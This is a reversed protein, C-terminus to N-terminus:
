DRLFRPVGQRRGSATYDDRLVCRADCPPIDRQETLFTLLQQMLDVLGFGHSGLLPELVRSFQDFAAFASPQDKWIYPAATPLLHRNVVRDWHLAFRHLAAMYGADMTDTSLIDYPPTGRFTMKWEEIHRAIPAGHLRKLIGVQLESPQLALLRDFGAEFVAPTEGPLGAILDAHVDAPADEILFRLGEEVAGRDLNRSVRRAVTENFTQVGAEIHLAGPPFALLCERLESSLGDPTMEFHLQMGDRWRAGFFRLLECAHRPNVNFSRDVFKFRRAGRRLLEDIEPLIKALPFYRVRDDLASICYECRYPCGRSTEIYLTRHALDDESYYRYP